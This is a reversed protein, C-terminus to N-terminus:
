NRRKTKGKGRSAAKSKAKSKAKEAAKRQKKDPRHRGPESRVRSVLRLDLERRDVDVRAVAVMVSDGLRYQNGSRNGSLTHSGRDFRYFDDQLSSIHVLGEAPLELGQVFLGFEEVGTVVAELELGIRTRLYELL